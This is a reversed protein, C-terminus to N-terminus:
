PAKEQICFRGHFEDSILVTGFGEVTRLGLGHRGLQRLREQLGARETAIGLFHYAYVAGPAIAWEDQRPLGHAANWGRVREHRAVAAM